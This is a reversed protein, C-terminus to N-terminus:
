SSQPRKTAGGPESFPWCTERLRAHHEDDTALDALTSLVWARLLGGAGLMM